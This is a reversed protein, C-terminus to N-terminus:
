NILSGYAFRNKNGFRMVNEILREQGQEDLLGTCCSKLKERMDDLTFPVEPDGKPVPITEEDTSGDEFFVEVKAGRIGKERCEMTPDNVLTIKDILANVDDGAKEVALDDLGFCGNVLACALTYHISFKADDDTKPHTIQGAIKIANEYIYLNVRTIAKGKNRNHVRVAAEIGCHTHRCSPYPKLYCQSIENKEGIGNTIMAEDVKDTMAHFWGKESELPNAAGIVGNKALLASIIGSQAAKAPNIPKVTQGSEAVILLGSGQTVAIGMANYIGDENLKLLKACAAACAVAGATGTSHFGRKALGPQAAASIRIYVEYGAVIAEIVEQETVDLTEAMAFVASIVHAGVHGMARKHGDDMDAGHAYTANLIAANQMPLKKDSFLVTSEEKGGMDFFINEMAHNFVTNVRRGAYSAAFYDLILLRMYDIDHDTINDICLSYVYESLLKTANLM